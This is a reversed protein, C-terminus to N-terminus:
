KRLDENGPDLVTLADNQLRGVPVLNALDVHILVTEQNGGSVRSEQESVHLGALHRLEWPAARAVLLKIERVGVDAHDEVSTLEGDNLIAHIFHNSSTASLIHVGVHDAGTQVVAVLLKTTAFWGFDNSIEEINHRNADVIEGLVHDLSRDWVIGLNVVQLQVRAAGLEQETVLALLEVQVVDFLLLFLRQEVVALVHRPNWVRIDHNCLVSLIEADPVADFLRVLLGHVVNFTINFVDM